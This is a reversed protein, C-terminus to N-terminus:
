ETKAPCKGRCFILKDLSLPGPGMFLLAVLGALMSLPYEYGGPGILGGPLHVKFIAVAMVCGLMFAALPTLFAVVLTTIFTLRHTM